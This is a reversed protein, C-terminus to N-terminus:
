MRFLNPRIKAYGNEKAWLNLPLAALEDVEPIAHGDKTLDVTTIYQKCTISSSARCSGPLRL